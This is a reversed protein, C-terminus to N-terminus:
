QYFLPKIGNKVSWIGKWKISLKFPKYDVKEKTRIKTLKFLKKNKTRFSELRERLLSKSISKLMIDTFIPGIEGELKDKVTNYELRLDRIDNFHKNLHSKMLNKKVILKVNGNLFQWKVKAFTPTVNKYLAKKIFATSSSPKHLKSLTKKM